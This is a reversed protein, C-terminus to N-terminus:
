YREDLALNLQLVNVCPEGIFGFYRKETLREILNVVDDGKIERNDGRAKLIRSVQFFAATPSIHPDLGSGSAFLLESPVGREASFAQMREEVQKKLLASTPGLNSGGSDLSNYNNSSPRGWFYRDNQFKQGILHAGVIRDKSTIFGGNASEKWTLQALATIILPYILGTLVSLWVFMRLSKWM